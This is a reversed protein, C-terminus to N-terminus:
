GHAERAILERKREVGWRYGALDGGTRVVRHCPIAVALPNAACARAVARVASPSGISEALKTYTVTEGAPIGSLAQWVRQQFATGRIDLPLKSGLRPQEVLGVVQAVLAEFARDAGILRARPFRRELDHALAQPDDGLLIACVGVATAAVLISGLSSEGIAFRIEIGKGGDRYKSPTMGLLANANEYFRAPSNFGAGYIAETVTDTRELEGRVRRARQEAAYARPTVGTVAKFTRQLHFVSLGVHNALTELSPLEEHAEIFRCVRAVQAARRECLPPQDPKCRKCPRFGAREADARTPHFSVNEPRAPRAACSPRCYVGTTKVAYYFAGDARPDRARLAAWRPDTDAAFPALAQNKVLMARTEQKPNATM